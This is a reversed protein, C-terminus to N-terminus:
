STAGNIVPKTIAGSELGWKDLIKAYIGDAMLAKVAGLVPKAMGNKPVAIGYPATNFAKGDLKFQGKSQAVIYAAVQSDAFGIQAHGSSVALNAESQTQYTGISVACKQQQSQADNLETTGLEVSVSHGCLSKLGNLKLKSNSPVYFAEGASFYDVFDVVKERSKEDTFSSLGIDYKGAGMGILITSFAVNQLTIKLGLVQGIAYALDADMGVIKGNAAVFEDPPYTADMAVVVSSKDRVSKPVEAALMKSKPATPIKSGAGSAAATNAIALLSVASLLTVGLTLVRRTPLLRM